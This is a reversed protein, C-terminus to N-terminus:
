RGKKKKKDTSHKPSKRSQEQREVWGLVNRQKSRAIALAGRPVDQTVTSGAAVYAGDEVEVPAVLQTNSGIFVNKGMRTPHKAVGDYNCTITGAGINSGPGIEADGLYTLHSAKSGKGLRTKKLEVFNGVRSDPDLRSGPRLHAFPGVQAGDGVVSDQLVSHDKIEVGRGVKINVLRCGARVICDEGIVSPGEIYVDPYIVTDRGVRARPDIWSREADLLTVGREQLRAASQAFLTRAAAALEQRTNVGLLEEADPHVVAQVAEGRGLLERVADTIYYEGQSNDPRVRKLAALLKRRDACYIGCNVERIQAEDRSADKHEVIHTVAGRADRVIRGYGTPDDVEATLLSLAAGARRHRIVLKRLTAPQLTPLDGNLVLLTSAAAGVERSAQLVAHGTGLQEQQVVFRTDQQQLAERVADAQFGVVTVLRTPKLARAAVLVHEVMPRGAVPHLLKITKSRLRTGQGAALVLVTLPRHGRPM